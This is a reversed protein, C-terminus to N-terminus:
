GRASIQEKFNTEHNKERHIFETALKLLDLQNNLTPEELVQDLLFKLIKGIQEGEAIRFTAMLVNGNIKLDKIELDHSANYIDLLRKEFDKQRDTIAINKLGNGLRESARLKFLPFSEITEPKLYHENLNVKKIFKRVSADTWERTYHYMHNKVLSIVQRTTVIDYKLRRLFNRALKVSIMEHKHFTVRVGDKTNVENRTPPKGIDHLLGALRLTIDSDCNDVTYILHTFVDYKHFRADQKVGVCDQLEPALHALLGTKRLLRLYKSPKKSMLIKNFEARIAEAPCRSILTANLKIAEIIEDDITYNTRSALSIARLMRIPSEKMRENASGNSSIRRNAIDEKGGVFDIIDSRSRYNIPLYLANLKFDRFRVDQSLTNHSDPIQMKGRRPLSIQAEFDSNSAKFLLINVAFADNTQALKVEKLRGHKKLFKKINRLSLRRIIVDLDTNNKRRLFDRVFGGVLFVEAKTEKDLRQLVQVTNM